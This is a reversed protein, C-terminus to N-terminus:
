EDSGGGGEALVRWGFIFLSYHIAAQADRVM